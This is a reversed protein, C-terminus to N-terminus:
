VKHLPPERRWFRGVGPTGLIAEPRRCRFCLHPSTLDSWTWSWLRSSFTLQETAATLFLPHMKLIFFVPMIWSRPHNENETFSAVVEVKVSAAAYSHFQNSAVMAKLATHPQSPSTLRGGCNPFPAFHSPSNDCRSVGGHVSGVEAHVCDPGDALMCEIVMCWGNTQLESPLPLNPYEPSFFGWELEAAAVSAQRRCLLSSLAAQWVCRSTNWQLTNCSKASEKAEWRGKIWM